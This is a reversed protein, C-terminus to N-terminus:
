YNTNTHMVGEQKQSECVQKYTFMQWENPMFRRVQTLLQLQVWTWDEESYLECVWWDSTCGPGELFQLAGHRVHDLLKGHDAASTWGILIPEPPLQKIRAHDEQTLPQIIAHNEHNIQIHCNKLKIAGQTASHPSEKTSWPMACTVHNLYFTEGNCKVVWPPITADSLHKKNFHFIAQKAAIEIM